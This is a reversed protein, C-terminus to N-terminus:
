WTGVQMERTSCRSEENLSYFLRSPFCMSMAVCVVFEIVLGRCMAGSSDHVNSHDAFTSGRNCMQNNSYHEQVIIVLCIRTSSLM